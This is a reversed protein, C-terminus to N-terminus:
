EVIMTKGTYRFHFSGLIKYPIKKFKKEFFYRKKEQFELATECEIRYNAYQGIKNSLFIYKIIGYM